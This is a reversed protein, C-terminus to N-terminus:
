GMTVKVIINDVITFNYRNTNYDRTLVLYEGERCSIRIKDNDKAALDLAEELTLGLYKSNDNLVM